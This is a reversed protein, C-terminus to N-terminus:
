KEEMVEVLLAPTHKAFFDRAALNFRKTAKVHWASAQRYSKRGLAAAFRAQDNEWDRQIKDIAADTVEMPAEFIWYDLPKDTETLLMTLVPGVGTPADQQPTKSKDQPEPEDQVDIQTLHDCAAMLAAYSANTQKAWRRIIRRARRPESVEHLADKQRTHRCVWATALDIMQLDDRWWAYASKTLWEQGAHSLRYLPLDGVYIPADLLTIKEMIPPNNIESALRHLRDIEGFHELLDIKAGADLARQVARRALIHLGGVMRAAM